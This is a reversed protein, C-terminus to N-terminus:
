VPESNSRPPLRCFGFLTNFSNIFDFYQKKKYKGLSLFRSVPHRHTFLLWIQYLLCFFAFWLFLRHIRYYTRFYTWGMYFAFVALAPYLFLLFHKYRKLFCSFSSGILILILGITSIKKYDNILTNLLLNTSHHYSANSSLKALEVISHIWHELYGACKLFIIFLVFMGIYGVFFLGTGKWIKKNFFDTGMMIETLFPLFGFGVMMINPLRAFFSLACLAGSILYLRKKDLKFGLYLSSLTLCAFLSTVENYSIWWTLQTYIFTILLSTLVKASSMFDKLIVYSSAFIGWYVLVVGFKAGVLGWPASVKLWLSNLFMSLFATYGPSSAPESLIDRSSVLHYGMDTFDLGQWIFLVPFLALLISLLYLRKTNM